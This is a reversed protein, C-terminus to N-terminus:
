RASTKPENTERAGFCRFPHMSNTGGCVQRKDRCSTDYVNCHRRCSCRSHLRGFGSNASDSDNASVDAGGCLTFIIVSFCHAPRGDLCYCWLRKERLPATGFLGRAIFSAVGPAASRQRGFFDSRLSTGSALALEHSEYWHRAPGHGNCGRFGFSAWSCNNCCTNPHVDSGAFNPGSCGMDAGVRCTFSFRM